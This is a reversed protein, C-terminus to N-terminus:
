SKMPNRAYTLWGDRLSQLLGHATFLRGGGAYAIIGSGLLLAIERKISNAYGLVSSAVGLKTIMYWGIVAVAAAAFWWVGIGAILGFGIMLLIIAPAGFTMVKHFGHFAGGIVFILALSIRMLYALPDWNIGRAVPLGYAADVSRAGSGLNYLVAFLGSLAVDRIQVFLAPSTYTAEPPIFGPTTVVPLSFVFSWLLPVWILCLPRVMLGALLMLGSILEFASLVTLFSWPTIFDPFNGSFLFAMFTENIYGLAGTYQDVIGQAKSATLLRELKAIGGIIFVSALGVRLTLALYAQTDAQSPSSFKYM